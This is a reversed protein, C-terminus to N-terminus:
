NPKEAPLNYKATM